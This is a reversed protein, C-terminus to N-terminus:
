YKSYSSDFVNLEKINSKDGNEEISNMFSEQIIEDSNSNSNMNQFNEFQSPGGISSVGMTMANAKLAEIASTDFTKCQGGLDVCIKGYLKWESLAAARHGNTEKIVLRYIKFPFETLVKHDWKTDDVIAQDTGDDLLKGSMKSMMDATTKHNTESHVPFWNQGDNSGLVVYFKPFRQMEYLPHRPNLKPPALEYGTLQLQFPLEIQIWEGYHIRQDASTLKIEPTAHTIYPSSRNPRRANEYPVQQMNYKAQGLAGDTEPMKLGQETMRPKEKRINLYGDKTYNKSRDMSYTTGFGYPSHWYTFPNGDFARKADWQWAHSSDSFKYLGNKFKEGIASNDILLDSRNVLTSPPTMDTNPSYVGFFGDPRSNIDGCGPRGDITTLEDYPSCTASCYKDEVRVGNLQNSTFCNDGRSTQLAFYKNNQAEQFCTAQNKTGGVPAHAIVPTGDGKEAYCGLYNWKLTSM